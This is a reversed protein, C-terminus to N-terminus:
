GLNSTSRPHSISLFIQYKQLAEEGGEPTDPLISMSLSVPPQGACGQGTEYDRVFCRTAELNIIAEKVEKRSKCTKGLDM